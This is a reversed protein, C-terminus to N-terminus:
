NSHLANLLQDINKGIFVLLLSKVVISYKYGKHILKNLPDILKSPCNKFKHAKYIINGYFNPHSVGQQILARCTSGFKRLLDIYRYYFKSFTKILKHYRFGQHLLKETLCLNRDNFDSVDSCVRAYRVLQSIYVGYSPALPVDGDLHPFNVIPFSFDDRKDYVKTNLKGQNITIDLDLFPTHDSSSNSKILTLEAPYIEDTFNSFEPNNLALIDDLYRYTNNFLDVLHQKSPDKHIKAMFQSEYCYLFLDAILPACNTGMPIGIKQRYVTDGFRVFINDLLFNLAKILDQCTWNTYKNHKDNSFFSKFTNCCIYTCGSKKFSWKILYSFKQKILTHPLTTYLTSFDYSDVSTYTENVSRLKDLVEVSNKVSWFYNIGSYEYCKNSFNIVLNKITTLASTLLVSIRTTSCKSSASIFRFKFPNKHLKPLWYMTPVNRHNSTAKLETTSIIHDDIIQTETSTTAQFTSSNTIENRLM